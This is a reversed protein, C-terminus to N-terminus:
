VGVLYLFFLTMHPMKTIVSINVVPSQRYELIQKWRGGDQPAAATVLPERWLDVSGSLWDYAVVSTVDCDREADSQSDPEADRYRWAM